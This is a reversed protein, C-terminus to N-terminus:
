KQEQLTPYHENNKYKEILQEITQLIQQPSDINELELTRDGSTSSIELHGYNLMHQWSSQRVHLDTIAFIFTQKNHRHFFGTNLIVKTSTIQVRYHNLIIETYILIAFIIFLILYSFNTPLSLQRTKAFISILVLFIICLYEWLFAKRTRYFDLILEEEAM